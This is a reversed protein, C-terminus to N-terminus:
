KVGATVARGGSHPNRRDSRRHDRARRETPFFLLTGMDSERPLLGRASKMAGANHKHQNRVLWGM